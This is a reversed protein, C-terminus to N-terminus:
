ACKDIPMSCVSAPVKLGNCLCLCSCVQCLHAVAGLEPYEDIDPSTDQLPQRVTFIKRVQACWVNEGLWGFHVCVLTRTRTLQTHARSKVDVERGGKRGGKGEIQRGQHVCVVWLVAGM